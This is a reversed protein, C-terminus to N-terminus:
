PSPAPHGNPRRALESTVVTEGVALHALADATEVARLWPSHYLRDFMLGLRELGRVARKWQKRGERTLPRTADPIRPSRAVAPAHRILFLQM